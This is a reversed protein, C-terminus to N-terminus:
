LHLIVGDVHDYDNRDVDRVNNSATSWGDLEAHPKSRLTMTLTKYISYM